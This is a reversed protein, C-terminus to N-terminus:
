FDINPIDPQSSTQRRAEAFSEQTKNRESAELQMLKSLLYQNHKKLEENEAELSDIGALQAKLDKNKAKLNLYSLNNSIEQSTKAEDLVTDGLPTELHLMLLKDNAQHLREEALAFAQEVHILRTVLEEKSLKLYRQRVRSIDRDLKIRLDDVQSLQTHNPSRKRQTGKHSRHKKYYTNAQENRQIASISVGKGELDVEQSKAVITSLSVQQKEHLLTDITKKVLEFTRQEKAKYVSLLHAPAQQESNNSESKRSMSRM